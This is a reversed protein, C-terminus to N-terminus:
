PRLRGGSRNWGLVEKRLKLRAPTAGLKRSDIRKGLRKAIRQIIYEFALLDNVQDKTLEIVEYGMEKLANVRAFDSARDEISTHDLKGHHEIDLGIEPYCMDAYCKSRRGIRAARSNLPVEHNMVPKELCYGGLRYPLCIAMADFTEMPSRSGAIVFPLAAQAKAFGRCGRAGTMYASLQEPTTLPANRSRFGREDREDFSYRGCLECGFAILQTATLTTAAVLFMFAPSAVFVEGQLEYFSGEPIPGSWVHSVHRASHRCLGADFSLLHLIGATPELFDKTLWQPLSGEIANLSCDCSTPQTAAAISPSRDIPYIQRWFEISTEIDIVISM